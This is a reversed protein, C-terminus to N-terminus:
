GPKAAVYLSTACLGPAVGGFDREVIAEIADLLRERDTAELVHAFSFSACLARAQSPTFTRPREFLSQQAEVFGAGGLLALHHAADFAYHIGSRYSPPLAIRWEALLASLREGFPDNGLGHGFYSNWWVSWIGGPVLLEMIRRLAAEADLWHFAAACAMLDFPGDIAAEPFSACIVQAGLPEYRDALFSAMGPDAEVLVLSLPDLARLGLTALGTGAGIEATRPRACARRAISAYLAPPYDSRSSDYGAADRGFVSRGVGRDMPARHPGVAAGRAGERM